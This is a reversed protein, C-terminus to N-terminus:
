AGTRRGLPRRGPPLRRSRGREAGFRSVVIAVVFGMILVDVGMQASVVLKAFESKPGISGGATSLIGVALYIADVRSLPSGTFAGPHAHSISYYLVAFIFIVYQILFVTYLTLVSWRLGRLALRVVYIGYGLLYVSFPLTAVELYKLHKLPVHVWIWWELGGIAILALGYGVIADIPNENARAIWSGRRRPAKDNMVRTICHREPAPAARRDREEPRVRMISRGSDETLERDWMRQAGTGRRDLVTLDDDIVMEKRPPLSRGTGFGAFPGPSRSRRAFQPAKVGGLEGTPSEVPRPRAGRRIDLAPCPARDTLTHRGRGSRGPM